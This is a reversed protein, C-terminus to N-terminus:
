FAKSRAPEPALQEGEVALTSQRVDPSWEDRTPPDDSPLRARELAAAGWASAAPGLGTKTQAHDVKTGLYRGIRM